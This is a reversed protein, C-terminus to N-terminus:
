GTTDVLGTDLVRVVRVDLALFALLVVAGSLLSVITAVFFAVGREAVKVPVVATSADIRPLAAIGGGPALKTPVYKLITMAVFAAVGVLAEEVAAVAFSRDHLAVRVEIVEAARVKAVAFAVLLAVVRRTAPVSEIALSRLFLVIDYGTTEVDYQGHRHRVKVLHTLEGSLLEISSKRIRNNIGWHHNCTICFFNSLYKVTTRLDFKRMLRLSSPVGM